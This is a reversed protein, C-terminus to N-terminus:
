PLIGLGLASADPWFEGTRVEGPFPRVAYKRWQQRLIHNEALSCRPASQLVGKQSVSPDQHMKLQQCGTCVFFMAKVIVFIQSDVLIQLQASKCAVNVVLLWETLVPLPPWKIHLFWCLPYLFTFFSFYKQFLFLIVSISRLSM